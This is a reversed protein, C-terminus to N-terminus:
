QILIVKDTIVLGEKKFSENKLLIGLKYQGPEFDKLIIKASFGSNSIDTESKFYTTVDERKIKEILIKHAQADKILLLEIRSNGSDLGPFYAWGSATIADTTATYNEISFNFKDGSEPKDLNYKSLDIKASAESAPVFHKTWTDYLDANNEVVFNQDLFQQTEPSVKYPRIHADVYWFAKRKVTGQVMGQVYADLNNDIISFKNQKNDLFYPFYWALSTVVPEHNKNNDIIFQTIERFQTKDVTKYYKKIIIVNTLSFVVLLSLFGARIIQNRFQIIGISIILLVAPLVNIFYRSIIMPISTYSRVLAIFIVTFIWFLIVIFSFVIKNEVIGNYSILFPKEKSLKIFYLTVIFGFLCLIFESNGFFEKFILTYADPTPYPIWFDKIAMAAIFIKVCPLFLVLIILGSIASNLVFAKRREKDITITCLTLLAIQSLLAFLSFFHGYLMLGGFIGYLVANRRNPLKIYRVLYLFSVITVFCYLVYPRAEQSYYIHYGNISLLLASILGVGKGIFEKGLKYLAYITTIGIVVSFLRAVIPTYGFIKFLIHVVYFYLPPHPDARMISSYVESISFSPNADNLTHIEDLWVSQFDLHYLRLIAGGILILVLLYNKRITDFIKM